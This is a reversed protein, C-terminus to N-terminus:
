IGGKKIKEKLRHMRSLLTGKKYGTELSIEEFTLGEVSYLYLVERDLPELSQLIDNVSESEIYLDDLSSPSVSDTVAEQDISEFPVKKSRRWEDYFVHRITTKLYAMYQRPKKELVKLLATQVLEFAKAEDHTLANAYRFLENM